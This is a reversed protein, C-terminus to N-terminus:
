LLIADNFQIVQLKQRLIPDLEHCVHIKSISALLEEFVEFHLIGHWHVQIVTHTQQPLSEVQDVVLCRRADDEFVLCPVGIASQNHWSWCLESLSDAGAREHLVKLALLGQGVVSHLMQIHREM